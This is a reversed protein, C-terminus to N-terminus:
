KQWVPRSQHERDMISTRLYHHIARIARFATDRYTYIRIIQMGRRVFNRLYEMRIFHGHCAINNTIAAEIILIRAPHYTKRTVGNELYM